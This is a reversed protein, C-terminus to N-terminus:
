FRSLKTHAAGKLALDVKFLKEGSLLQSKGDPKQSDPRFVLWGVLGVSM